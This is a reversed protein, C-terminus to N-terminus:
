PEACSIVSESTFVCECVGALVPEHSFPSAAIHLATVAGYKVPVWGDRVGKKFLPLLPIDVRGILDDKDLLDKDFIEVQM